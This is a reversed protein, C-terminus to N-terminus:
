LIRQPAVALGEEDRADAGGSVGNVLGNGGQMISVPGPVDLVFRHSSFRHFEKCFGKKVFHKQQTKNKVM